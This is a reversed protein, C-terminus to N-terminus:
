TNPAVYGGPATNTKWHFIDGYSGGPYRIMRVGAAKLLDSVAPTGLEADWVADNVGLGTGPMTALGGRANVAVKVPTTAAGADPAGPGTLSVAAALAAVTASLVPRLRLRM